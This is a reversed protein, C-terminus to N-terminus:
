YSFLHNQYVSKNFVTKDAFCLDVGNLNSSLKQKSVLHKNEFFSPINLASYFNDDFLFVVNEYNDLVAAARECAEKETLIVCRQKSSILIYVLAEFPLNKCCLKKNSFLLKQFELLTGGASYHKM